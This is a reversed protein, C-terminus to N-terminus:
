GAKVSIQRPKARQSKPLVLRLVGNTLKADIHEADVDEPIRFLRRYDANVFEVALHDAGQEEARTAHLSLEGNEYRIHLDDGKVGPLDALVLYENQNEYIDVLPAVIPRQSAQEAQTQQQNQLANSKNM